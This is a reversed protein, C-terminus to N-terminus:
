IWFFAFVDWLGVFCGCRLLVCDVCVFEFLFFCFHFTFGVLEVVFANLELM